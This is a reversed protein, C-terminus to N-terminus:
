KGICFRAFIRGLLDDPTVDGLIERLARIAARLDVAALEPGTGGIFAAHAARLAISARRAADRHRETALAVSELPRAGPAHLAVAIARRLDDVGEGTVCSVRVSGAAAPPPEARDAHTAVRLRSAVPAGEPRQAEALSYVELVLDASEAATRARRMAEADARGRAEGVGAADVLVVPLGEIVITEEIVDRTTGPEDCVIVREGGILRNFLSSKGANPPGLLVVRAGERVTRAAEGARLVDDLRRALDAARSAAQAAFASVTEDEDGFDLAGETEALVDVIEDALPAIVAGVEGALQRRAIRAQEITAAEVLDRVAEAQALTLKGHELARQTFEGARAPRAGAAVCAAVLERVVAPSGHVTMEALDEGTASRPGAFFVAMGDDFPAGDRALFRGLVPRRTPIAGARSRAFVRALIERTAPGSLRVIALAARGPATAPAVITENHRDGPPVM